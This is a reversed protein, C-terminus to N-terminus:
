VRFRLGQVRLGKLGLGWVSIVVDVGPGLNRRLGRYYLLSSGWFGQARLRHPHNQAKRDSENKKLFFGLVGVGGGGGGWGM